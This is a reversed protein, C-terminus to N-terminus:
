KTHSLVICVWFFYDIGAIVVRMPSFCYVCISLIHRYFIIRFLFPSLSLSIYRTCKGYFIIEINQVLQKLDNAKIKKIDIDINCHRWVRKKKEKEETKPILLKIWWVVLVVAYLLIVLLRNPWYFKFEIETM